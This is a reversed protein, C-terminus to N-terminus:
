NINNNLLDLGRAEGHEIAVEVATKALELLRKSEARLAFSEQIKETIQKQIDERILPIPIHLFENKNMATLITGSCAKRMLEQIPYSKFLMLSTEPTIDTSNIVYFGTSCLSNNYADEVIACSQLSGEISSIIIDGTNMKRRARSPLECGLENTCDTIDGSKGINSLEVYKYKLDNKPITNKDKITYVGEITHYGNSYSKIKDEIQDYKPQYYEADLRGSALFDEFSKQTTADNTPQWDQLGLEELLINEADSYLALSNSNLSIAKKYTSEIAFQIVNDLIPIPMRYLDDKSLFSILLNCKYRDKFAVGYKSALYSILYYKNINNNLTMKYVSGTILVKEPFDDPVLAIKEIKGKVEILIEGKKVRGKPYRIWDSEDVYAVNDLKIFPTEIDTAQLFMPLNHEKAYEKNVVKTNEYVVRYGDQIYDELPSINKVKDFFNIYYKRFYESDLRFSPNDIRVNAFTSESIELGEM